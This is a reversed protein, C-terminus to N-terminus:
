RHRVYHWVLKSWRVGIFRIQATLRWRVESRQKLLVHHQRLFRWNNRAVWAEYQLRPRRQGGGWEGVQFCATKPTLVCRFGAAEASLFLSTEERWANGGLGEDYQLRDFVARRILVSSYLFPTEVDETPFSSPHTELGIHEVPDSRAAALAPEMEGFGRVHLWPAGVIDAIKSHAVSLLTTAFDDPVFCDDDVLLVWGGQAARVGVNRARPAGGRSALEICRVRPDSLGRVWDGTCDGSGDVVVIIEGVGELRLVSPLNVKLAALRNFTPVVVTVGSDRATMM